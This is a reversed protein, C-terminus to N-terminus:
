AWMDKRCLGRAACFECARGDGLAPLAAGGAIRGLEDEIGQQLLERAQSLQPHEVAVVEGREGINLYAARLHDDGLLAAYFALQTDELPQKMRDKSAQLSETKYDIVLAGHPLADIRDVRGVLRVPGLATEHESEASAFRAGSAEHQELWRLYGNRVTPWGALFPLFEGPELRLAALAADAERDLLWARGESPEGRLRLAEHFGRLVAHLWTGFDRKGLETDVEDAEKLGLQRLAFFRYPCRRLDEYASASLQALPLEAATPQPRHVPEAPLSRLERPEAGAAALGQLQLSQVLPSPLLPEGNDDATRWLLDCCPNQLAQLWAAQQAQQLM